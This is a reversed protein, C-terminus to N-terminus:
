GWFDVSNGEYRQNFKDGDLVLTCIDTENFKTAYGGFKIRSTSLYFPKYEPHFEVEADSGLSM